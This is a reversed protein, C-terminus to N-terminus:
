SSYKPKSEAERRTVNSDAPITVNSEAPIAVDILICTKEKKSKIIIDQRKATLEKRTRICQNWLGTLAEHECVSKTHTHTLAVTCTHVM